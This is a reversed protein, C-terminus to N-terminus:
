EPFYPFMTEFSYVKKFWTHDICKSGIGTNFRNLLSSIGTYRSVNEIDIRLCLSNRANPSILEYTAIILAQLIVTFHM